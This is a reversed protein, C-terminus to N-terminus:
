LSLEAIRARAEAIKREGEAAIRQLEAVTAEQAVKEAEESAARVADAELMARLEKKEAFEGCIWPSPARSV